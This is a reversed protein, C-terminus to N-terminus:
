VSYMNAFEKRIENQGTFLDDLYLSVIKDLKEGELLEGDLNAKKKAHIQMCILVTNSLHVPLANHACHYRILVPLIRISIKEPINMAIASFRHQMCSFRLVCLSLFKNGNEAHVHPLVESHMIKLFKTKCSDDEIASQVTHLGLPESLALLVLHAANLIFIKREYWPAIDKTRIYGGLTHTSVLRQDDEIAWVMYPESTLTVRKTQSELTDVVIRDVLTNRFVVKKELWNAFGAVKQYIAMREICSRLVDGNNQILETPLIELLTERSTPSAHLFRHVLWALLKAPFSRPCVAKLAATTITLDETENILGRETTNSVIWRISADMATALFDDYSTYPNIIRAYPRVPYVGPTQYEYAAKNKSDTKKRIGKEYANKDVDKYTNKYVNKGADEGDEFFTSDWKQAVIHLSYDTIPEEHYSKRPRVPTICIIKCDKKESLAPVMSPM